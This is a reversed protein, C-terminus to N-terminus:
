FAWMARATLQHGLYRARSELDYGVSIVTGSATTKRYSTGLLLANRGPQVGDIQFAPGGVVYSASVAPTDAFEHLWRARLTASSTSDIRNRFEMGFVSQASNAQTSGINQASVGGSETYAGNDLRSVRAGMIWRGNWKRDLQFPLGYEFRAGLQTGDFKGRVTESFGGISVARQANYRNASIVVSADLTYSNETRSFYGGVHLAKVNNDNGVGADRGDTGAQTYGGSVGILDRGDLDIEYGVALGQADVDYGNAGKREKQKAFAALGQMWVRGRNGDGSSMGTQGGLAATEGSRAADSRSDFASFLSGQAANAAQQQSGNTEPLLQRTARSVAQTNSLNEIANLLSQSAASGTSLITQLGIAASKDAVPLVEALSEERHAVLILDDGNRQLTYTVFNSNGTASTLNLNGATATLTGADVLTYQAGNEVYTTAIARITAGDALSANGTVILQDSAGNAGVRAELVGTASQTYNGTVNITRFTNGTPALLTGDVTLNNSTNFGGNIRLSAHEDVQVNGVNGLAYNFTTTGGKVTFDQFNSIQGAQFVQTGNTELLNIGTGGDITGIVTGGFLRLTDDGSGMDIALGNKGEIRGYNTLMDNGAGMQVAAGLATSGNEGLRTTELGGIIVGTTDNFIKDNFDGVLGIAAEKDGIISGANVISAAAGTTTPTGRQAAISSGDAGDDILIGKSDGYISAGAHNIITGGGAAIGDAGNPQGGSDLGGAGLGEIRGHNEIYAVGDIDVGDGDGNNITEGLGEHDYVNGAGAYKGSITGYNIVVGHGDLGVGSGNNGTITGGDYNIVVPNIIKVNHTVTDGVVKDFVVGNGDASTVILRDIGILNGDATIAVPDGGDIGHRPGTITGHNLIVVNSRGNEIAVGDSASFDNACRNTPTQLYRPCSTNVIGTSFIDGYNTLTVNSGLRIADNGTASIVANRNTESGNIVQNGTTTYASDVKIAREGGAITTGTHAITGQNNIVFASTPKDVRIVQGGSGTIVGGIENTIVVNSSAPNVDITRGSGTQRLVGANTLTTTGSMAISAASGSTVLSGSATISASGTSLTKATTDASSVVLQAYASAGFAAQLALILPLPRLCKVSIM